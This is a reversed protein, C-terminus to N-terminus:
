GRHTESVNGDADESKEIDHIRQNSTNLVGINASTDTTDRKGSVRRVYKWLKGEEAASMLRLAPIGGNQILMWARKHDKHTVDIQVIEKLRNQEIGTRNMGGVANGLSGGKSDTDIGEVTVEIFKADIRRTAVGKSSSSGFMIGVDVGLAKAGGGLNGGGGEQSAVSDGMAMDGLGDGMAMDWDSAGMAEKRAEPNAVDVKKRFAEAGERTKFTRTVVQSREDHGGIKANL